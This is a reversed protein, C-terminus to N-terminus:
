KTSQASIASVCSSVHVCVRVRLPGNLECGDSVKSRESLARASAAGDRVLSASVAVDAVVISSAANPRHTTCTILRQRACPHQGTPRQLRRLPPTTQQKENRRQHPPETHYPRLPIIHTEDNCNCPPCQKTISALTRRCSIHANHTSRTLYHPAECKPYLRTLSKM